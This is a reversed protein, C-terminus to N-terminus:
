KISVVWDNYWWYWNIKKIVPFYNDGLELWIEKSLWRMYENFIKDLKENKGKAFYMNFRYLKNDEWIAVLVRALIDGKEDKLWYIWKNVDVVNLYVSSAQSQPHTNSLCSWNVLNWMLLNEFVNLWRSIFVKKWDIIFEKNNESLWKEFNIESKKDEIYQQNSKTDYIFKINDPLALKLYQWKFEWIYFDIIRELLSFWVLNFNSMSNVNFTSSFFLIAEVIVPDDLFNNSLLFKNIKDQLLNYENSPLEIRKNYSLLTGLMEQLNEKIKQELKKEVINLIVEMFYPVVKNIFDINNKHVQLFKKYKSLKKDTQSIESFRLLKSYSHEPSVKNKILIDTLFKDIKKFDFKVKALKAKYAIELFKYFKKKRYKLLYEVLVKSDEIYCIGNVFINSKMKSYAIKKDVFDLFDSFKILSFYDKYAVLWNRLLYWSYEKSKSIISNIKKLDDNELSLIFDSNYMLFFNIYERLNDFYFDLQEVTFKKLNGVCIKNIIDFYDIKHSLSKKLIFKLVDVGDNFSYLKSLLYSFNNRLFNHDDSIYVFSLYDFFLKYDEWLLSIVKAFLKIDGWFFVDLYFYSKKYIYTCFNNLDKKFAKKDISNWILTLFTDLKKDSKFVSELTIELSDHDKNKELFPKSSIKM